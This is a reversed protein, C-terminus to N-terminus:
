AVLRKFEEDDWLAEFDKDKKAREKFSSDLEIARRLDSLANEREGKLAYLCARNFWAGAYDPKLEIAKELSELAEESRGLRELVAGKGTWADAYDPKLEIAREYAELAEDYRGFEHLVSGKNVWAKELDPKLEIAKELSELASYYKDRHYFAIGRTMYDEAKLSAGLTEFVDFKRIFEDLKEMDEESPKETLSITPLDGLGSRLANLDEEAENRIQTITDAERKADRAAEKAEREADRAVEKVQKLDREMEQIVAKWEKYKFFGAAGAIGIIIALITVMVSVFTAVINFISLSRDLSRQAEIIIEERTLDGRQNEEASVIHLLSLNLLLLLFSLILIKRTFSM